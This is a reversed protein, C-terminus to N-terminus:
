VNILCFPYDFLSDSDANTAKAVLPMLISVETREFDCIITALVTMDLIM